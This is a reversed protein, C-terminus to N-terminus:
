RLQKQRATTAAHRSQQPVETAAQPTEANASSMSCSATAGRVRNMNNNTNNDTNAHRPASSAYWQKIINMNILAEESKLERFNPPTLRGLPVVDVLAVLISQM